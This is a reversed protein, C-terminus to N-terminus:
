SETSIHHLSETPLEGLETMVEELQRLGEKWHKLMWPMKTPYMLRGTRLNKEPIYRDEEIDILKKYQKRSSKRHEPTLNLFYPDM